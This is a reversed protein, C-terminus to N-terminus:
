GLNRGLYSYLILYNIRASLRIAESTTFSSTKFLVEIVDRSNEELEGGGGEEDNM